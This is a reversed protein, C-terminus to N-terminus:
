AHGVSVQCTSCHMSGFEAGHYTNCKLLRVPGGRGHQICPGPRSPRLPRRHRQGAQGSRHRPEAKSDVRSAGRRLASDGFRRIAAAGRNPPDAAAAWPPCVDPTLVVRRAEVPAPQVTCVCWGTHRGAASDVAPASTPRSETLTPLAGRAPIWGPSGRLRAM